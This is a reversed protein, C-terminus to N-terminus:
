LKSGQRQVAATKRMFDLDLMPALHDWGVMKSQNLPNLKAEEYIAEYVKGDERGLTSHLQSDTLGLSDVLAVAEPRLETLIDNLARVVLRMDAGTLLGFFDRGQEQIEILMTLEFMKTLVAKCAADPVYEDSDLAKSYNVVMSYMCHCECAHYGQVAVSNLADDFSMGSQLAETFDAELDWCVQRARGRLLAMLKATQGKFSTVLSPVLLKDALYKVATPMSDIRGAKVEGVMKILYRATQLGLIMQEGEATVQAGYSTSLDAVGSSRLYGQGGCAKRCDEIALHAWSTCVAKLGGATAHLEPLDDMAKEDGKGVAAVIRKYM